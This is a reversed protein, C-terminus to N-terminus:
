NGKTESKALAALELAADPAIDPYLEPHRSSNVTVFDHHTRCFEALLPEHGEHVDFIEGAHFVRVARPDDPPVLRAGILINKHMDLVPPVYGMRGVGHPHFQFKAM